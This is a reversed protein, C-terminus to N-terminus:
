WWLAMFWERFLDLGEDIQKSEEDNWIRSGKDRCTLQFAVIMKDLITNWEEDTLPVPTGANIEKFRQLRPLIFYCITDTLSWTESDDFGRLLRQKSYDVERDDYKDTLSFCINPINLYKVDVLTDNLENM